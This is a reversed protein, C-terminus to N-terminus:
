RVVTMKKVQTTQETELRVLYVGSAATQGSWQVRHIGARKSGDALVAIRRGMVDYVEIRHHQQEPLAYTITTQQSFPNPYNGRLKVEEPTVEQERSGVYQADGVLLRMSMTETNPTLRISEESRLDYSRGTSSNLLVVEQGKFAELGSTKVTVPEGPTATLRVDFTHGGTGATGNKPSSRYEHALLERRPTGQGGAKEDAVFRLSAAEFRAPPAYQDYRDLGDEASAHLGAKATSTKRGSRFTELVLAPGEQRSSASTGDPTSPYPIVLEDLGQDNLFYFAEGQVASTFTSAESYSGDFAWLSNLTGGNASEVESWPASRDLPNSIINWGEHLPITTQFDGEDSGIGPSPSTDSVSVDNKSLVWYGAGAEFTFNSSQGDGYSILDDGDDRWAQWTEGSSGELISGLDTSRNGPLAMLRYSSSQSPDSFSRAVSTEIQDPYTEFRTTDSFPGAQNRIPRVRWHYTMGASLGTLTATTDTVVMTDTEAEPFRPSTAWQVEYELARFVSNFTVEVDSPLGITRNSPAPAVVRGESLEVLPDDALGESNTVGFNDEAEIFYEIGAATIEEGPVTAEYTTGSTNTMSVLSYALDGQTRYFLTVRDVQGDDDAEATITRDQGPTTGEILDHAVTPPENPEVAAKFPDNAANSSPLTVRDGDDDTVQVYFDMGPSGVDSAPIAGEFSGSSAESMSVSSYPNGSGAQRYFVEANVNTQKAFASGGGGSGFTEISTQIELDQNPPQQTSAVQKLQDSPTVRPRSAIDYNSTDASMVGNASATVAVERETKSTSAGDFPSPSLCTLVYTSSTQGTIADAVTTAFPDFIDFIQGGTADTLPRFDDNLNSTTAAYLTVGEGTIAQRADDVDALGTRQAPTEDTAVVFVKDAGSRFTFNDVSQETAFYGPETGGSTINRALINNKFFQDDTTLNGQNEFIPGGSTQGLDGTAGQGYRTLGLASNVGRSRLEDVFDEINQVVDDQEFGMSGSNDVVFVIDALRRNIGQGPPTFTCAKQGTGIPINTGEESVSFDGATLNEVPKGNNEVSVSTVTRVPTPLSPDLLTFDLASIDVALNTPQTSGIYARIALDKGGLTGWSGQKAGAKPTAMEDPDDAEQHRLRTSSGGTMISSRGDVSQAEAFVDLTESPDDPYIVVHYDTNKAVSAGTGTLPIYNWSHNALASAPVKVTKGQKTGPLGNGDDDWVEVNLSDSLGNANGASLHLLAGTISGSINPTIRVALKEANSGGLVESSRVGNPANEDYALLEREPVKSGTLEAMARLVDLKGHGWTNNPTAGTFDDVTAQNAFLDKVRTGSLSGDEQFLLAAAGATAPSSMSTGNKLVHEGGPLTLTPAVSQDDSSLASATARGPATIEPKLTGDRLPGVSSFSAIRDTRDISTSWLFDSGDDTQWRWRHTWAGVTLASKATGPTGITYRSDGGQVYNAALEQPSASVERGEVVVPSAVSNTGLDRDWFWSHFGNGNGSHDAFSITWTGQAPPTSADQDFVRIQVRRDGNLGSVQNGISIAGDSTSAVSSSDSPVTHSGGNPGTVTVEISDGTDFWVDFQADDNGPGSQPTFSGVDFDFSTSAGAQVSQRLHMGSNGDNGASVVPLQGSGSFGDVAQAVNSTGDHPGVPSGLSMNVVVPKGQDDAVEGCYNMGDIVNAFSFRENGAKVVILDAEPAVGEHKGSPHANGTSVATGAVHTGHGTTDNSRVDPASAGFSNEIDSTSYEVGFDFGSLDSDGRQAPNQEGGQPSITQDWIYEIKSNSLNSGTRFDDHEWDIGSDIVCVMAGSGTYSTNNLFGERLTEAGTVGAVIDNTPRLQVGSDVWKVDSLQALTLLESASVRATVFRSQVSNISMGAARLAQVDSTYIAAGYRAEGSKVLGENELPEPTMGSTTLGSNPYEEAVVSQFRADLRSREADTLAQGMVSAVPFLLLAVFVAFACTWSRYLVSCFTM